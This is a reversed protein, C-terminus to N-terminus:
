PFWGVFMPLRDAMWNGVVIVGALIAWTRKSLVIQAVRQVPDWADRIGAMTHAVDKLDSAVERFETMEREIGSVRVDITTLRDEISNFRRNGDEFRRDRQAFESKILQQILQVEDSTM